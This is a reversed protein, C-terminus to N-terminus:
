GPSSRSSPRCGTRENMPDGPELKEMRNKFAEIFEEAVSELVIFRKAGVCAQGCNFMKGTLAADVAKEINADDLVIFPDSGGLEMVAKKLLKGTHAAVKSGAAESGTLSVGRVRKDDLVMAVMRSSILLNTYVGEPFGAERFLSELALACQPVNSAHKILCVNGAMINPAVFRLVQYYPFNWPMVGLLLGIPHSEVYAEGKAVDIKQPALFTKANKAYYEAIDACTAVEWDRSERFLRGMEISPYKEYAEKNERLLDAVRQMLRSREEMSTGKWAQYAADARDLAAAVQSESWEEFRKEVENTFPNKTEIAM